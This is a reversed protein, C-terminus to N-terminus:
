WWVSALPTRGQAIQVYLPILFGVALSFSGAVLFEIVASKEEKSALVEMALLPQKSAAVRGSSWAFFAQGLVIGVIIFIPWALRALRQHEHGDSTSRARHCDVSVLAGSFPTGGSRSRRCGSGTTDDHSGNRISYGTSTQEQETVV